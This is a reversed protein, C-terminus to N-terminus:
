WEPYLEKNFITKYDNCWFDYDYKITFLLKDNQYKKHKEIIKIYYKILDLLVDDEYILMKDFIYISNIFKEITNIEIYLNNLDINNFIYFRSNYNRLVLELTYIKGVIVKNYYEERLLKYIYESIDNPLIRSLLTKM